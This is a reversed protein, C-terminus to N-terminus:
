STDELLSSVARTQRATLVRTDHGGHSRSGLRNFRGDESQLADPQKFAYRPGRQLLKGPLAPPAPERRSLADNRACRRVLVNVQDYRAPHANRREGAGAPLHREPVDRCAVPKPIQRRNVAERARRVDDRKFVRENGRHSRGREALEQMFVRGRGISHQVPQHGPDTFERFPYEIQAREAHLVANMSLQQADGALRADRRVGRADVRGRLVHFNGTLHAGIPFLDRALHRRHCLLPQDLTGPPRHHYRVDRPELTDDSFPPARRLRWNSCNGM